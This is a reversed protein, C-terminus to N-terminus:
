AEDEQWTVRFPRQPKPLSTNHDIAQELSAEDLLPRVEDTVARWDTRPTPHTARWTVKVGPGDLVSIPGMQEQLRQCLRRDEEELQRQHMRCSRLARLIEQQALTAVATEGDDAPHRRGMARSYAESGDPPPLVGPEINNRWFSEGLAVLGDILDEDREIRYVRFDAYGLLAALWAHPARTVHLYWQVQVAYGPPVRVPQEDQESWGDKRMSWKAEFVAGDAAVRDLHGGEWPHDRCRVPASRRRLRIGTRATFLDAVVPELLTGMAMMPTPSDDEPTPPIPDLDPRKAYFVDIPRAWPSVGALAAMDTGGLFHRRIELQQQTLAM